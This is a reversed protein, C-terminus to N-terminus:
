EGEPDEHGTRPLVKGKSKGWTEYEVVAVIEGMGLFQRKYIYDVHKGKVLMVRAVPVAVM